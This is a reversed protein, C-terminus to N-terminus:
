HFLTFLQYLPEFPLTKQILDDGTVVNYGNRCLLAESVAHVVLDCEKYNAM